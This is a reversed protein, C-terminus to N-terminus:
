ESVEGESASGSPSVIVDAAADGGSGDKYQFTGPSGASDGFGILGQANLNKLLVLGAGLMILVVLVIVLNRFAKSKAYM